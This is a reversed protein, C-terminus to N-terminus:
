HKKKKKRKEVRQTGGRGGDVSSAIKPEEVGSPSVTCHKATHQLSNCHTAAAEGVGRASVRAGGDVSDELVCGCEADLEVGRPSVTCHTATHQMTNCHTAAAEEDGRPSVRASERPLEPPTPPHAHHTDAHADAHTPTDTGKHTGLVCAIRSQERGEIATKLEITCAGTPIESERACARAAIELGSTCVDIAMEVERTCAHTAMGLEGACSAHEVSSHRGQLAVQLKRELELAGDTALELERVLYELGVEMGVRAEMLVAREMKLAEHEGAMEKWARQCQQTEHQAQQMKMSMLLMQEEVLACAGRAHQCQSAALGGGERKGEREELEQVRRQQTSCQELAEEPNAHCVQVDAELLRHKHMWKAEKEEWQSDEPGRGTTDRGTSGHPPARTGEHANCRPSHTACIVQRTAADTASKDDQTATHPIAALDQQWAADRAAGEAAGKEEAALHAALHIEFADELVQSLCEAKVRKEIEAALAEHSEKLQRELAEQLVTRCGLECRHIEEQKSHLLHEMARAREEHAFQANKEQEEHLLTKLTQVEICLDAKYQRADDKSEVITQHLTEKDRLASQLSTIQQELSSLYTQLMESKATLVEARLEAANQQQLWREELKAGVDALRQEVHENYVQLHGRASTLLYMDCVSDADHMSVHLMCLTYTIHLKDLYICVDSM